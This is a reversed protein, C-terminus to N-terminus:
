KKEDGTAMLETKRASGASSGFYYSIVATWGAGLNGLMILLAQNESIKLTGLMMGGLLGFFGVTVVIAIAAPLKSRTTVQM